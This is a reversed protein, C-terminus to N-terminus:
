GGPLFPEGRCEPTCQEFPIDDGALGAGSMLEQMELRILQLLEQDSNLDLRHVFVAVDELGLQGVLKAAARTQPMPGDAASLVLIGRTAQDSTLGILHCGGAVLRDVVPGVDEARGVSVQIVQLAGGVDAGAAMVADRLQEADSGGTEVLCVGTEGAAYAGPTMLLAVAFSVSLFRCGTMAEVGEM